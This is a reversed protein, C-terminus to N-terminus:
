SYRVHETKKLDIMLAHHLRGGCEAIVITPPVSPIVIVSCSELGYNNSVQPTIILPGQM